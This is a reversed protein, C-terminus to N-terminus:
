HDSRWYHKDVQKAIQQGLVNNKIKSREEEKQSQSQIKVHEHDVKVKRLHAGIREACSGLMKLVELFNGSNSDTDLVLHEDHGRFALGQRGQLLIVDIIRELLERNIKVDALRRKENENSQHDLLNEINM